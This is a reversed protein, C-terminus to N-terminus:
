RRIGLYLWDDGVGATAKPMVIYADYSARIIKGDAKLILSDGKRVQDLHKWKKALRDHASERFYGASMKIEIVNQPKAKGDIIGCHRLSNLIAKAAVAAATPAQHQGCEILLCDKGQKAAYTTTDFSLHKKDFKKYLEPWGTVAIKPGLITAFRRNAKTPFDLYIFPKGQATTSHIDLFVDCSNILLCLENALRAELSRPKKTPKFIRNLNEEVYRVNKAYAAPNAIPVFTVSGKQLVIKGSKIGAIIKEIAQTGCKENGHVAGFVLLAPGPKKGRFTQPKIAPLRSATV